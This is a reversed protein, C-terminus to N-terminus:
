QQKRFWLSALLTKISDDKEYFNDVNNLISPPLKEHLLAKFRSVVM